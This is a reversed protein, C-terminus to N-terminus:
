WARTLQWRRAQVRAAQFINRTSSRLVLAMRRVREWWARRSSISIRKGILVAGADVLKQVVFANREPSLSYAPCAVTTPLGACDINDKIAFPIGYLPGPDSLRLYRARLLAEARPVLSIWVPPLPASEIRDYILNIVDEPQASSATYLAALTSLQLDSIPTSNM